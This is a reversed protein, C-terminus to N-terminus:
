FSRYNPTKDVSPQQSTTQGQMEFRDKTLSELGQEVMVRTRDKERRPTRHDHYQEEGTDSSRAKNTFGKHM